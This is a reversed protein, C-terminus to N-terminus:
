CLHKYPTYTSTVFCPLNFSILRAIITFGQLIVHSLNLLLRMIAFCAYLCNRNMKRGKFDYSYGFRVSYSTRVLTRANCQSLKSRMRDRRFQTCTWQNSSVQDSKKFAHLLHSVNHFTHSLEHLPLCFGIAFHQLTSTRWNHVSRLSNVNSDRIDTLIMKISM